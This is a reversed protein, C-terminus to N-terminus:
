ATESREKGDGREGDLAVAVAATTAEEAWVTVPEGGDDIRLRHQSHESGSQGTVRAYVMTGAFALVGLIVPLVAAPLSALSLVTATVTALLGVMMAASGLRVIRPASRHRTVGADVDEVAALAVSGLEEDFWLLRRDTLGLTLDGGVQPPAGPRGREVAMVTWTERIAEDGDCFSALVQEDDRM